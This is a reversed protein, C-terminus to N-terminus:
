KAINLEHIQEMHLEYQRVDCARFYKSYLKRDHGGWVREGARSKQHVAVKVILGARLMKELAPRWVNAPANMLYHLMSLSVGPYINLMNLIKQEVVDGLEPVQDERREEVAAAAAAAQM